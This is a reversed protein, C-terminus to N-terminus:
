RFCTKAPQFQDMGYLALAGRTARDCSADFNLPGGFTSASLVRHLGTFAQEFVLNEEEPKSSESPKLHKDLPHLDHGLLYALIKGGTHAATPKTRMDDCNNAFPQCYKENHQVFDFGSASDLPLDDAIMFESTNNVNWYWKGNLFKLPGTATAADYLKVLPSSIPQKSLLLRYAPPHYDDMAEVWYVYQGEILKAWDFKFEVVGYISGWAWTNASVWTVSLRSTNLRSKDYILGAKIKGDEIIRRAVPVHTIHRVTDLEWEPKADFREWEEAM